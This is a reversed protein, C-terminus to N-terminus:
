QLVILRKPQAAYSLLESSLNTWNPCIFFDESPLLMQMKYKPIHLSPTGPLPVAHDFPQLHM